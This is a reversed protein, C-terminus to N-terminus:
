AKDSPMREFPPLDAFYLNHEQSLATLEAMGERRERVVRDQYAVLDSLMVRRHRGVLEFDVAGSELIKILTPRSVGIFDAAEQTTLKSRSPMVTVGDGSALATAVSVLADFIEGPIRVTAGDPSVIVASEHPDLAADEIYRAFDVVGRRESGAPPLYTRARSRPSTATRM